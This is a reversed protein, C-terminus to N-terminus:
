AGAKLANEMAVRMPMISLRTLCILGHLSYHLLAVKEANTQNANALAASVSTRQAGSMFNISDEGSIYQSGVSTIIKSLTEDDLTRDLDEVLFDPPLEVFADKQFSNDELLFAFGPDIEPQEFPPKLAHSLQDVDKATIKGTTTINDIIALCLGFGLAASRKQIYNDKWFDKSLYAPLAQKLTALFEMTTFASNESVKGGSTTTLFTLTRLANQKTVESLIKNVESPRLGHKYNNRVVFESFKSNSQTLAPADQLLRALELKARTAKSATFFERFGRPKASYEFQVDGTNKNKTAYLRAKPNSAGTLAANTLARLGEISAM